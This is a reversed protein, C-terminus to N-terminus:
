HSLNVVRSKLQTIVGMEKHKYKKEVLIAKQTEIFNTIQSKPGNIFATYSYIAELNRIKM